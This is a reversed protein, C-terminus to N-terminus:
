RLWPSSEECKSGKLLEDFSGQGLPLARLELEYKCVRHGQTDYMSNLPREYCQLIPM